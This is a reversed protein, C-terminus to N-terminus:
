LAAEKGGAARPPATRLARYQGMHRRSAMLCARGVIVRLHGFPPVLALGEQEVLRAAEEHVEEQYAGIISAEAGLATIAAHKKGVGAAVRLHRRAPHPAARSLLARGHKGTSATTSAQWATM